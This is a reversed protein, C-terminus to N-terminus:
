DTGSRRKPILVAFIVDKVLDILVNQMAVMRDRDRIVSEIDTRAQDLEEWDRYTQRAKAARALADEIKGAVLMTGIEILREGAKRIADKNQELIEKM